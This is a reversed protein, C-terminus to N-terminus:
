QSPRISSAPMQDRAREAESIEARWFLWSLKESDTLCETLNFEFVEANESDDFYDSNFVRWKVFNTLVIWRIGSNKGYNLVQNINEPSTLDDSFRKAELLFSPRLEGIKRFAYDVRTTKTATKVIQQPMVESTLWHWEFLELLPRIFEETRKESEGQKNPLAEHTSLLEAICNKVVKEDVM